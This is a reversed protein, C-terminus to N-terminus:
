DPQKARVVGLEEFESGGKPQLVLLESHKMMEFSVASLNPEHTILVLNGAGTYGGIVQSLARTQAAAEEPGLIELLSLYGAPVGQAFAIRATDAARCFPSHRVESVPIKHEHFQRGVDRAQREGESSLNREKKCSPDRLLSNGSGPGGRVAAHRMLVVKGGEALKHWLEDNAHVPNMGSLGVPLAMGVFLFRLDPLPIV